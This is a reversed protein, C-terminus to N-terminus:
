ASSVVFSGGFQLRMDASITSKMRMWPLRWARSSPYTLDASVQGVLSRLFVPGDGGLVHGERRQEKEVLPYRPKDLAPGYGWLSVNAPSVKSFATLAFNASPVGERSAALGEGM